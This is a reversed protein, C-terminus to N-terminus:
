SSKSAMKSGLEEHWGYQTKAMLKGIRDKTNQYLDVKTQSMKTVVKPKGEGVYRPAMKNPVLSAATLNAIVRGKRLTLIDNTVNRIVVSVRHSGPMCVSYTPVTVLKPTEAAGEQVLPEAIVHM